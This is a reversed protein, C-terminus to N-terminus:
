SGEAVMPDGHHLNIITINFKLDQGGHINIKHNYFVSNVDNTNKFHEMFREGLSQSPEGIYRLEGKCRACEICYM